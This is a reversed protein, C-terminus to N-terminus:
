VRAMNSIYCMFYQKLTHRNTRLQTVSLWSLDQFGNLPLGGLTRIGAEGGSYKGQSGSAHTTLIKTRKSDRDSSGCSMGALIRAKGLRSGNGM